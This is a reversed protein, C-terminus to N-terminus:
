PNLEILPASLTIKGDVLTISASGVSLTLKDGASVQVENRGVVYVIPAGVYFLTEASDNRAGNANFNIDGKTHVEVSGAHVECNGKVTAKFDGGVDVSHGNVVSLSASGGIKTATNRTADLYYDREARLALFESGREDEMVIANFGDSGQTSKSKWWTQTQYQPLPGAPPAVANNVSGLVLPQDPDGDLYGIVVEDGARPLTWFGRSTGMWPMAVRVRRSAGQPRTDWVFHVLIRGEADVDLEKDAGGVVFATQTGQIRPKPLVEPRWPASAPVLEAVHAARKDSVESRTEVVLFVGNMDEHPHDHLRIKMGARMPFSTEWRYRATKSRQQELRRQALLAGGADDDFRGVAFSYRTLPGEAGSAGASFARQELLYGPKQPDYDRLRAESSAVQLAVGVSFVCPRQANLADADPRYPVDLDVGGLTTDDTVVWHPIGDADPLWFSVLGHESLIRFVFDHDTEGCQVRYDYTPLVIQVIAGAPAEVAGGYTDVVDSVIELAHRGEFIRHGSRERTLWLAPVITLQYSTKEGILGSPPPPRHEVRRIVGRVRLAEQESPGGTRLHITATRGVLAHAGPADDLAIVEAVVEPIGNLRDTFRYESVVLSAAPLRDTSIAGPLPDFTVDTGWILRADTM